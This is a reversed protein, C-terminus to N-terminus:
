DDSEIQILVENNKDMIEYFIIECERLTLVPNKRKDVPAKLLDDVTRYYDILKDAINNCKDYSSNFAYRNDTIALFGILVSLSINGIQMIKNPHATGIYISNVITLITSNIAMGISFLNKFFKYRDAKQKFIVACKRAKTRLNILIIEDEKNWDRIKLESEQNLFRNVKKYKTTKIPEISTIELHKQDAM